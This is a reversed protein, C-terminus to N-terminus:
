QKAKDAPTASAPEPKEDAKATEIPKAAEGALAGDADSSAPTQATAPTGRGAGPAAAGPGMAGGAAQAPGRREGPATRPSRREMDPSVPKGEEDLTYGAAILQEPVWGSDVVEGARPERLLVREGDNLGKTIEAFMDSRRGLQIPRREYRGASPVLVYRVAGESFVAQVPVALASDVVGLVIEAQCRMSPKLLESHEGADVLVRVTYERRNPDRWGGTEALLGISEVEGDLRLGGLAEVAISARQGPRIRGAMSEHVKVNAIMESTDPLTIILDNKHVQRGVSIPGESQVRWNDSQITSGYVVLGSQPAKITCAAYQKQYETLREVRRALQVARNQRASDRNKLNIENTKEARILDQEAEALDSLKQAHDRRLQFNIYVSKDLLATEHSATAELLQIEDRKWEDYSIFQQEYLRDSKAKKERLRDLDRAAKEISTELEKLRKVKDGQEWQELALRAMDVRLQAKRLESANDSLQIDYATEAAELNLRAEAVQLEEEEMQRKIEDDNLRVLVQGADIRTGEPTIEVITTPREVDSRLEVREKAALEGTALTSIEFSRVSATAIDVTSQASEGKAQDCGSLTAALLAAGGLMVCAALRIAQRGNM